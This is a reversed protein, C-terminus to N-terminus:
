AGRGGVLRRVLAAAGGAGAVAPVGVSSTTGAKAERKAVRGLAATVEM